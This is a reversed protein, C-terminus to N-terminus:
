RAPVYPEVTLLNALTGRESESFQNRFRDSALVAQREPIPMERIDRFARAVLRRRDQPLSSLQEMAGRVQQRQAPSLQEMAETRELLRQRQQPPMASLQTLRDRMRQQTDAPLSQFGPEHELASQQQAPPLNRHRDMWQALHEQSPKASRAVPPHMNPATRVPQALGLGPSVCMAALALSRATQRLARSPLSFLM